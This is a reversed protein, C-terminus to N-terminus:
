PTGSGGDLDTGEEPLTRMPIRCSVSLGAKCEEMGTVSLVGKCLGAYEGGSVVAGAEAAARPKAMFGLAGAILRRERLLVAASWKVTQWLVRIDGEQQEQRNM